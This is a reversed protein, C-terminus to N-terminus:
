GVGSKINGGGPSRIQWMSLLAVGLHVNQAHQMIDHCEMWDEVIVFM